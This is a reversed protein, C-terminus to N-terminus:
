AQRSSLVSLREESTLSILSTKEIGGCRGVGFVAGLQPVSLALPLLTESRVLAYIALAAGLAYAEDYYPDGFRPRSSGFVTVVRAQRKM